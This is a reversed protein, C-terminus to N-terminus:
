FWEPHTAIKDLIAIDASLWNKEYLESIDLWDFDEHIWLRSHLDPLNNDDWILETNQIKDLRCRYCHLKVHLREDYTHEIDIIHDEPIVRLALEESFERMLTEAHTEGPKIKGGPFEWCGKFDGESRATCLMRGHVFLAGAVVEVHKM